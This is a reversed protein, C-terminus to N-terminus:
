LKGRKQELSKRDGEFIHLSMCHFTFDGLTVEKWQDDSHKLKELLWQALRISMYVDDALHRKFDCSRILYTMHLKGERLLLHYGLSCPVREQMGAAAIDEPFWVPLYAQRTQPSRALVALLDNLDGYRFRIGYRSSSGGNAVPNAFRPWYREPYSHSFADKQKHVANGGMAFPWYAESPPPNVPQGSVREQFHDEAWPLNPQIDVQLSAMTDPMPAQWLANRYEYSILAPNGKVNMAHWEGVDVKAAVDLLHDRLEDYAEGLSDFWDM